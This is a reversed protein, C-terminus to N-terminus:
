SPSEKWQCVGPYEKEQSSVARALELAEVFQLAGEADLREVAMM